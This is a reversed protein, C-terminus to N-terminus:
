AAVVVGAFTKWLGNQAIFNHAALLQERLRIAEDSYKIVEAELELVRKGEGVEAVRSVPTKPEVYMMM